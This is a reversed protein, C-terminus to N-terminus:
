ISLWITQAKRGELWKFKRVEAFRLTKESVKENLNKTKQGSLYVETCFTSYKVTSYMCYHVVVSREEVPAQHLFHSYLQVINMRLVVTTHLDISYLVITSYRVVM